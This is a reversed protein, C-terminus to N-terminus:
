FFGVKHPVYVNLYLCDEEGVVTKDRTFPDMQTCVRNNEVLKLEGDWKEIPEPNQPFNRLIM